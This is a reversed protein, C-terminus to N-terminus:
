WFEGDDRVIDRRPRGAIFVAEKIHGAERRQFMRNAKGFDHLFALATLREAWREPMVEVRALAPLRAQITPNALLAEACAAVDICHDVLPHWREPEGHRPSLKAWNEGNPIPVDMKLEIQPHIGRLNPPCSSSWPVATAAVERTLLR